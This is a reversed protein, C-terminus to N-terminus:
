FSFPYQYLVGLGFILQSKRTGNAFSRANSWDQRIEPRLILDLPLKIEPTFTVSKLTQPVGTRVGSPDEFSEARLAVAFREGLQRRVVGEFGRWHVNGIGPVNEESGYDYNFLLLWDKAPKFAAIFDVLLRDNQTNHSQQPGVFTNLSFSAEDMPTYNLALGLTKGANSSSVTDWGNVAYLTTNFAPTFDYKLRLGTHTLPGAYNYQFSRSYNPDDIAYTYELGCPTLFKGVEVDLGSGVPAKYRLYLETLDVPNRFTGLHTAHIVRAEQGGCANLRFGIPHSLSTEKELLFQLFDLTIANSRYDLLHFDNPQGPGNGNFNYGGQLYVRGTFPKRDNGRPPGSPSATPAPSPSAQSAPPTGSPLPSPQQTAGVSPMLLVALCALCALRSLLHSRRNM